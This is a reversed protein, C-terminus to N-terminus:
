NVAPFDNKASAQTILAAPALHFRARLQIGNELIAPKVNPHRIAGLLTAAFKRLDAPVTDPLIEGLRLCREGGIGYNACNLTLTLKQAAANLVNVAERVVEPGTGDGANVAIDYNKM